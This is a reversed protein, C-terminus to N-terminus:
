AQARYARRTHLIGAGPTVPPPRWVGLEPAICGAHRARATRGHRPPAGSRPAGSRAGSLRLPQITRTVGVATIEHDRTPAYCRSVAALGRALTSTSPEFGREREPIMRTKLTARHPPRKKSLARTRLVIINSDISPVAAEPLARISAQEIYRPHVKPDSPHLADALERTEGPSFIKM